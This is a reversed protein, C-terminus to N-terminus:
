FNQLCRVSVPHASQMDCPLLQYLLGVRESSRASHVGAITIRQRLLPLLRPQSPVFVKDEVYGWLICCPTLDLSRPPWRCWGFAGAGALVIWRRPLHANLHNRVAINIHPPEGDKQFIFGSTYHKVQPLLRLTLMGLYSNGTFTHFSPAM